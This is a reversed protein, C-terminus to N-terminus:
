LSDHNDFQDIVWHDFIDPRQGGSPPGWIGLGLFPTIRPNPTKTVLRNRQEATANAHSIRAHHPECTWYLYRSIDDTLGSSLFLWECTLTSVTVKADSFLNRAASGLALRYAGPPHLTNSLRLLGRSLQYSTCLNFLKLRGRQHNTNMVRPIGQRSM